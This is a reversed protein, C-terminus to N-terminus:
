QSSGRPELGKNASKFINDHRFNNLQWCRGQVQKGNPIGVAGQVRILVFTASKELARNVAKAAFFIAFLFHLIPGHFRRGSLAVAHQKFPPREKEKIPVILYSLLEHKKKLINM